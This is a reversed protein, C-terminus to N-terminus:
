VFGDKEAPAAAFVAGHRQVRHELLLLELDDSKEGRNCFAIVADGHVADATFKELPLSLGDAQRKVFNKDRRLADIGDVFRAHFFGETEEVDLADSLRRRRCRGRFSAHRGRSFGRGCRCSRAKGWRSARYARNIRRKWSCCKRAMAAQMSVLTRSGLKAPRSSSSEKKRSRGGVASGQPSFPSNWVKTKSPGM